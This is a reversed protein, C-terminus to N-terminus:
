DSAPPGPLTLVFRAGPANEICTLDGGHARALARAIPLGLGAGGHDRSRADDLRVLREFVHERQDRPIGTGSDTITLTATPGSRRVDVTISGGPPTHRRANDALNTVIQGLRVPDGHIPVSAEGTRRVDLSPALTAARRCESEAIAALDCPVPQLTIGADIRSLDLMDAVLRGARRADALVLEARRRQADDDKHDRVMAAAVIQEAGAHMGAIPTRLEHAADALFGRTATNAREAADAAGRARHESDELADLMADFASAARGLETAPRDPHLRRGRDGSAISEALGTLRRLPRMAVGVVLTLGAAAVALVAIASVVLTLRLQRLVDTTATTDAVLILRGGDPLDHTIATTTTAPPPPPPPPPGGSPPPPPGGSPPPPHPPPAVEGSVNEPLARDGYDTGDPGILRVRIGGGELEAAVQAPAAGGTVLADARSATALLRDHLDRRAQSGVAQDITVGLLVLLLTLLGLVAVVVRSRLSPTPTTETM